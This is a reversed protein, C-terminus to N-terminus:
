STLVPNPTQAYLSSTFTLLVLLRLFQFLRSNNM